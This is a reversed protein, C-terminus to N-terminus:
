PGHCSVCAAAGGTRMLDLSFGDNGREKYRALEADVNARLEAAVPRLPWASARPAALAQDLYQVAHERDGVRLFVEAFALGAGAQQYPVWDTARTCWDRTTCDFALIEKAIRPGHGTALPLAALTMAFFVGYNPDKKMLAWFEREAEQYQETKGGVYGLFMRTFWKWFAIEVKDPALAAAKDLDAIVTGYPGLDSQEAALATALQARRWYLKALAPRPLEADKEARAALEGLLVCVAGRKGYDFQFAQWFTREACLALDDGHTGPCGEAFTGDWWSREAPRM